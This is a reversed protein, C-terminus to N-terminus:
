GDAPLRAVPVPSALHSFHLLNACGRTLPVTTPTGQVTGFNPRAAQDAAAAATALLLVMLVGTTRSRPMVVSRERQATNHLM